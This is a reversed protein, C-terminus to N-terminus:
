FRLAGAAEEAIAIAANPDTTTFTILIAFGDGRFVCLTGPRTPDAVGVCLYEVGDRTAVAPTGVGAPLGGARLEDMLQSLSQDEVESPLGDVSLVVIQPLSSAGYVAADLGVGLVDNGALAEELQRVEESRNRDFGALRDPFGGGDGGFVEVAVFAVVVVGIAGVIAILGAGSRRRPPPAHLPPPEPPLAGAAPPPGGPAPAQPAEPAPPETPALRVGCNLCAPASALNISRCSPCTRTSV